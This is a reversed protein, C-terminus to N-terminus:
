KMQNIVPNAYLNAYLHKIKEANGNTIEQAHNLRENFIQITTQDYENKFKESGTILDYAYYNSPWLKYNKYIQQDILDAIGQLLENKRLSLDVQDLTNNISKGINLHIRGKQSVVGGIISKLDEFEDKIYEHKESLYLERVKMADCPEWEYSITIPIINLEKISDIIDSNGSLSLMKLVGPDSKDFGDKARGKRQAIWVSQNRQSVSQRIYESLRQSNKFMEKPTGERFVTIMRNSKGVDEIFPSLILNDGWAIESTTHGNEVLLLGLIASDLIIDRHNAIFVNSADTPLNEIGSLTLEKATKNVISRIVPLMFALQFEDTNKAQLLRMRLKEHDDAPILYNLLQQFLPDSNIRELAAPIEHPYYPRIEDFDNEPM